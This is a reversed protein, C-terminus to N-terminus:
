TGDYLIPCLLYELTRIDINHNLALNERARLREHANKNTSNLNQRIPVLAYPDGLGMM